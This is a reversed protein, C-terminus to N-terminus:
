SACDGCVQVGAPIDLVLDLLYQVKGCMHCTFTDSERALVPVPAAPPRVQVAVASPTRRLKNGFRKEAAQRSIDLVTGIAEWTEGADRMTEVVHRRAEGAWWNALDIAHLAEAYQGQDLKRKTEAAGLAM